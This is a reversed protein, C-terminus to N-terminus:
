RWTERREVRTPYMNMYQVIRPHQGRNPRSGHPLRHDWIILDGARGAIPKSGLAHLDAQRPNADPPLADLWTEIRRHFGPVCTFAGQEPPTDTLYLIGQTAFPIPQALSVDWHLDPGPFSQGPREPPNFGARDTTVWLDATGWLQAFAKHIRPTRRNATFAPHQFLQVMIGQTNLAYWSNPDDSRAGIHDWVAREAALRTEAAVADSLIVYGHEAWHALDDATLVPAMAEIAALRQQTEGPLGAGTMAANIRVRQESEIGGTTTIIWREFEEFAPVKQMLYQQTQELGLGLADLLLHNLHAEALDPRAGGQRATLAGAWLRRLQYVGLEGVDDCAPFSSNNQGMPDLRLVPIESRLRLGPNRSAEYFFDMSGGRIAFAEPYKVREPLNLSSDFDHLAHERFVQIRTCLRLSMRVADHPPVHITQAAFRGPAIPVPPEAGSGDLLFVRGLEKFADRASGPEGQAVRQYKSQEFLVADVSIKEPVFFGGPHLQPSLNLTAAVQPERRLTSLLVECGIVHPREHAALQVTTADAVLWNRVSQSVGLDDALTRAAELAAPHLDLLIFSVEDAPYRLALPLALPALPGCGAELVWITEGPFRERAARLAAAMAQLFVATRRYERVCRAAGLPSIAKGVSLHTATFFAGTLDPHHEDVGLRHLAWECWAHAAARYEAAIRTPDLLCDTWRRFQTRVENM